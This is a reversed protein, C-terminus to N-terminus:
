GKGALFVEVLRALEEEPGILVLLVRFLEEALHLVIVHLSLFAAVHLRGAPKVLLYLLEPLIPDLRM